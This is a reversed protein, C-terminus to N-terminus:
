VSLNLENRLYYTSMGLLMYKWLVISQRDRGGHEWSPLEDKHMDELPEEMCQSGYSVM